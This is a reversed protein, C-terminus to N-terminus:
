KSIIFDEIILADLAGDFLMSIAEFPTEVIPMGKKNFSTNLLVSIGTLAKFAAILSYFEPNLDSTVTQVRCTGDTHVVGSLKERWEPKIHDILIMYPSEDGNEFYVPADEHLVAPAFPRFDERFKINQNIHLQVSPLRPDALISRHGLARPGFEAGKQFWAIVKGNALLAAGEKVYENTQKYNLKVTHQQQYLDIAEKIHSAHYTKGFFSTGSLPVKKNGLVAYWGYYACGLALGNDGSAPQMYLNKIGPTNLLKRNAVANLAVGGAYAMNQHPYKIARDSFLYCIAKETEKQVWRAIAAYHTFNAKFAKYNAAPNTFVGNLNDYLVEVRGNELKFLPQDYVEKGYPALGMLKGADDMNGFCYNSAASYLGGISHYTTPLKLANSDDYLRMESFDKYLTSLKQGDFHYFSDKECYMGHLLSEDPIYAGDLDKCQQYPSGAGDIVMINCTEFPSMAAASWAHALHHSITIVPIQIDEDFYRRGLYRAPSIDIEFNAAQVILDLDKVTIGAADLCYQVTLYDNGGDHKLRTLREKEIAVIIKGDKLICTSGNHSLGTGLIYKSM